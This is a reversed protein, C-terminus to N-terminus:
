LSDQILQLIGATKFMSFQQCHQTAAPPLLLFYIKQLAKVILSALNQEQLHGPRAVESHLVRQMSCSRLGKERSQTVAADKLWSGVAMWCPAWEYKDLIVSSTENPASPLPQSAAWHLSCFVNWLSATGGPSQCSFFRVAYFNMNISSRIIVFTIIKISEGAM